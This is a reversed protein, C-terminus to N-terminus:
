VTPKRLLRDLLDLNTKMTTSSIDMEKLLTKMQIFIHKHYVCCAFYVVSASMKSPHKCKFEEKYRDNKSLIHDVINGCTRIVNWKDNDPIIYSDYIKTKIYDLVTSPQLREYYPHNVLFSLTNNCAKHIKGPLISFVRALVEIERVTHELKSAFFISAAMHARLNDGRLQGKKLVIELFEKALATANETLQLTHVAINHLETLYSPQKVQSQTHLRQLSRTNRDNGCIRTICGKLDDSLEHGVRSPDEYTDEFTRWEARDDILGSEAVLGCDNCLLDGRPRDERLDTSGCDQCTREYGGVAPHHYMHSYEM